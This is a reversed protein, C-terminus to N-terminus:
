MRKGDHLKKWRNIAKSVESAFFYGLVEYALLPMGEPIQYRGFFVNILFMTLFVGWWLYVFLEGRRAKSTIGAWRSVEKHGIYVGLLVGYGPIIAEPIEGRINLFVSWELALLAVTWILLFWFMYDKAVTIEREYELCIQQIKSQKLETTKKTKQRKKVM